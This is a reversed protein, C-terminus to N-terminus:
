AKARPWNIVVQAAVSAVVFTPWVVLAVGLLPPWLLGVAAVALFAGFDLLHRGLLLPRLREASAPDLAPETGLLANRQASVFLGILSGAVVYAALLASLAPRLVLARALFAALSGAVALHTVFDLIQDLWAGFASSQGRARALLGDTNDLALSIEWVLFVALVVPAPAPAPAALVLAAGVLDICAGTISVANPSIRTHLLGQAFIAGLPRNVYRSWFM